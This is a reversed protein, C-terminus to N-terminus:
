RCAQMELWTVHTPGVLGLDKASLTDRSLYAYANAKRSRKMNM